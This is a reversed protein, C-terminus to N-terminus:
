RIYPRGRMNVKLFDGRFEGHDFKHVAGLGFLFSLYTGIRESNLTM